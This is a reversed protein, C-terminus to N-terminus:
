SKGNAISFAARLSFVGLIGFLTSNVQGEAQLAGVQAYAEPEQTSIWDFLDNFSVNETGKGSAPRMLTQMHKSPPSWPPLPSTWKGANEIIHELAARINLQRKARL